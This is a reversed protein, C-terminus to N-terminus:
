CSRIFIEFCICMDMSVRDLRKPVVHRISLERDYISFLGRTIISGISSGFICSIVELLYILIDFRSSHHKVSDVKIKECLILEIDIGKALKVSRSAELEWSNVLALEGNSRCFM